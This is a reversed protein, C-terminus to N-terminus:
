PVDVHFAAHGHPSDPLLDACEEHIHFRLTWEGAAPFVVPGQYVGSGAPTEPLYSGISPSLPAGQLAKDDCSADVAAPIFPEVMIGGPVGAAPTGDGLNTLTVTVVVSTQACIATSSWVVHYKCDDDDAEHGFMTDGYPCDEGADAAEADATMTGADDPFGADGASGADGVSGGGVAGADPHCSAETTPQVTGDCHTDAPGSSPGGPVTCAAADNESPLQPASSSTCAGVLAAAVASCGPAWRRPSRMVNSIM